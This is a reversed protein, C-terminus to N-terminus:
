LQEGTYYIVPKLNDKKCDEIFEKIAIKAEARKLKLNRVSNNLKGLKMKDITEEM